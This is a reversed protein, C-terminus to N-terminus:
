FLESKPQNIHMVNVDSNVVGNVFLIEDCFM